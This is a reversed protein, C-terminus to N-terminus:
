RKIWPPPDFATEALEMQHKEAAITPDHRWMPPQANWVMSRALMELWIGVRNPPFSSGNAWQTVKTPRLDLRRALEGQSWGLVELQWQLRAGSLPLSFEGPEEPVEYAM